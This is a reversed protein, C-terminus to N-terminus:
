AKPPSLEGAVYGMISAAPFGNLTYLALPGASGAYLTGNEVVEAGFVGSSSSGVLTAVGTATNVTYLTSGNTLYLTDM